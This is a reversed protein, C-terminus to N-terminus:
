VHQLLPPPPPSALPAAYTHYGTLNSCATMHTQHLPPALLGFRPLPLPRRALTQSVLDYACCCCRIWSTRELRCCCLLQGSPHTPSQVGWWLHTTPQHPRRAIFRMVRLTGCRASPWTACCRKRRGSTSCATSHSVSSSATRRCALHPRRSSCAALLRSQPAPALHVGPSSACALHPALQMLLCLAAGSQAAQTCQAASYRVKLTYECIYLKNCSAHPEPYPSYYWTDLEHKGLEVSQINKVKTKEQHEKELHQM